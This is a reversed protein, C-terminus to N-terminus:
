EGSKKERMRPLDDPPAIPEWPTWCGVDKPTIMSGAEPDRFLDLWCKNKESWHIPGYVGITTMGGHDRPMLLCEVDADPLKQAPDFWEIM